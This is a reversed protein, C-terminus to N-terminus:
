LRRTPCAAFGSYALGDTIKAIPAGAVISLVLTGSQISGRLGKLVRELRQPKVSLIVLGAEGAAKANDTSFRVGYKDALEQCREPRPGAVILAEPSALDNRILGAIIGEAMAGPGIFAITRNLM